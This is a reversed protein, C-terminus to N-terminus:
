SCDVLFATECDFLPRQFTTGNSTTNPTELKNVSREHLDLGEMLINKNVDEPQKEVKMLNM